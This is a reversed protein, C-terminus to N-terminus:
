RDTSAIQPYRVARWRSTYSHKSRLSVMNWVMLSRHTMLFAKRTGVINRSCFTESRDDLCKTTTSQQVSVQEETIYKGIDQMSISHERERGRPVTLCEHM